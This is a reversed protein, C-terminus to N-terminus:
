EFTERVTKVRSVLKVSVLVEDGEQLDKLGLLRLITTTIETQGEETALRYGDGPYEDRGCSQITFKRSMANM